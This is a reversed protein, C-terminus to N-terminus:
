EPKVVVKRANKDFHHLYGVTGLFSGVVVMGIALALTKKKM